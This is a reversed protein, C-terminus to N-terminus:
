MSAWVYGIEVWCRPLLAREVGQFKVSEWEHIAHMKDGDVRYDAVVQLSFLDFERLCSLTNQHKIFVEPEIVSVGGM